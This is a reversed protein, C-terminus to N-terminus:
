FSLQELRALKIKAKPKIEINFAAQAEKDSQNTGWTM